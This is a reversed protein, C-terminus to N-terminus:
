YTPIKKLANSWYQGNVDLNSAPAQSSKLSEQTSVSTCRSATPSLRNAVSVGYLQSNFTQIYTFLYRRKVKYRRQHLGRTHRLANIDTASLGHLAHRHLHVFM